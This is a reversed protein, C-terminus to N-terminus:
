GNESSKGVTESCPLLLFTATSASYGCFPTDGFITSFYMSYSDRIVPRFGFRGDLQTGSDFEDAVRTSPFRAARQCGPLRMILAHWSGQAEDVWIQGYRGKFCSQLFVYCACIYPYMAILQRHDQQNVFFTLSLVLGGM